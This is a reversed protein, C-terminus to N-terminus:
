KGRCGCGCPSAGRTKKFLWKKFNKNIYAYQGTKAALQLAKCRLIFDIFGKNDSCCDKAVDGIYKLANKYLIYWNIVVGINTTNDMGCPTNAAPTGGCKIYVYVINKNFDALNLQAPLVKCTVKRETKEKTTFVRVAKPSPEGTYSFNDDIDVYVDTIYMSKYYSESSISADIVLMSGDELIKLTKYEVM